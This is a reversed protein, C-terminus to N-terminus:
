RKNERSTWSCMRSEGTVVKWTDNQEGTIVLQPHSTSLCRVIVCSRVPFPTKCNYERLSDGIDDGTIVNKSQYAHTPTVPSSLAIDRM